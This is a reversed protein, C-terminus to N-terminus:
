WKMKVLREIWSDRKTVTGLEKHYQLGSTKESAGGDALDAFHKAQQPNDKYNNIISLYSYTRYKEIPFVLRTSRELLINEAFDYENTTSTKIVLESYDLYAQTVVNPFTKEFDIAQRYYNIAGKFDGEQKCIDGLTHLVSSRNFSDDPYEELIKKLLTEAVKLLTRKRTNVLELAQLKLYQARGEKRARRLKAFFEEEDKETWTTRRYWDKMFIAGLTLIQTRAPSGFGRRTGSLSRM